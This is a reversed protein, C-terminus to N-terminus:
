TEAASRFRTFKALPLTFFFNLTSRPIFLAPSSPHSRWLCKVELFHSNPYDIKAKALVKKKLSLYQLSHKLGTYSDLKWELVYLKNFRFRKCQLVLEFVLSLLFRFLLQWYSDGSAIWHWVFKPSGLWVSAQSENRQATILSRQNRSALSESCTM